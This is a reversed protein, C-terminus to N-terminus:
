KKASQWKYDKVVELFGNELCVVVANGANQLQVVWMTRNDLSVELINLIAYDTYNGRILKRYANSLRSEPVLMASYVLYGSRLFVALGCTDNRWFRVGFLTHKKNIGYWASNTVNPFKKSFAQQIKDTVADTKISTGMKIEAIGTGIPITHGLVIPELASDNKTRIFLSACGTNFLLPILFCYVNTRKM